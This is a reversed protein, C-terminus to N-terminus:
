GTRTIFLRGRCIGHVLQFVGPKGLMRRSICLHMELFINNGHLLDKEFNMTNETKMWQPRTVTIIVWHSLTHINLCLTVPFIKKM